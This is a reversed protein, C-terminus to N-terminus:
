SGSQERVILWREGSKVLDLTKRSNASLENAVYDQRFKASATNGRVSISVDSLKVSIRSKSLIRQRREEEWAARSLKGPPDFDRGYAGLYAGMDKAAWAAAWANV